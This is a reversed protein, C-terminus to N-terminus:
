GSAIPTYTDGDDPANVFGDMNTDEWKVIMWSVNYSAINPYMVYHFYKGAAYTGKGSIGYALLVNRGDGDKFVEILFHDNHEDIGAATATISTGNAYYWLSWPEGAGRAGPTDVHLVPAVKNLEYYYVAVNVIPGGFSVIGIGQNGTPKGSTQDVFNDDTDFGEMISALKTTVFASATWDSVSAWHRTLPKSPNESPYVVRVDNQVFVEQFDSFYRPRAPAGAIWLMLNKILQKRPSESLWHIPFAVYAVRSAESEYAAIASFSTDKGETSNYYRVIEEAGNRSIGDPFPPKVPFALTEPLERAIPHEPHTVHLSDVAADDAMYFVKGIDTLLTDNGWNYGIDEGEMVLSLYTRKHSIELISARDRPDIAYDWYTGTHWFISESSELLSTPPIGQDKEVWFRYSFPLTDLVQRISDPDVGPEIYALGDNDVVVLIKPGFYARTLTVNLEIMRTHDSHLTIRTSSYNFYEALM